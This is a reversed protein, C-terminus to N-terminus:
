WVWLATTDSPATEQIKVPNSDQTTSGSAFDASAAHGGDAINIWSSYSSQNQKRKYITGPLGGVGNIPLYIQEQWGEASSTPWPAYPLVILTGQSDQVIPVNTWSACKHIGIEFCTDADTPTYGHNYIPLADIKLTAGDKIIPKGAITAGQIASSAKGDIEKLKQDIIANDEVFDTRKPYENGQWQNLGYNPTKNASPM